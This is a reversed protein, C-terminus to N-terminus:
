ELVFEESVKDIRYIADAQTIEALSSLDEKRSNMQQSVVNGQIADQLRLLHKRLLEQNM